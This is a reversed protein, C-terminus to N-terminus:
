SVSLSINEHSVSLIEKFITRKGPFVYTSEKLAPTWISLFPLLSVKLSVALETGLQGHSTAGFEEYKLSWKKPQININLFHMFTM